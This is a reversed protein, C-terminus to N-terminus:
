SHLFFVKPGVHTKKANDFESHDKKEKAKKTLYVSEWLAWLKNETSWANRVLTMQHAMTGKVETLEFIDLADKNTKFKEVNGTVAKCRIGPAHALQSLQDEFIMDQVGPDTLEPNADLPRIM